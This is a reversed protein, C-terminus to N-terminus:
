ITGYKRLLKMSAELVMDPTTERMCSHDTPCCKKHCPACDINNRLVLTRELNSATYRPDTPGMIVVVPVDFAVAYHRPGTDNTILLECRKILPKLLALDVRDSATNIINARTHQMIKEALTDEGPGVLLILKCQLMGELLEAIRSFYEPPWCKSTGFRAGPNLGILADDPEIGYKDLLHDCQEQLSESFFLSPKTKEPFALGMSRCIELYYQMMPFPLYGKKQSVPLPGDTLFLSRGGRRYGYTSKARGLWAELASRFSNPLLVAIDPKFRRIISATEFLGRATENNLSVIGDFWPGDDVVKNVGKKVVCILRSHPYNERICDFVPTAMLVDGVWNPCRILITGPEEIIMNWSERFKSFIVEEAAGRHAIAHKWVKQYTVIIGCLTGLIAWFSM